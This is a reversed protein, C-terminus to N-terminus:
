RQQAKRCMAYTPPWKCQAMPLSLKV